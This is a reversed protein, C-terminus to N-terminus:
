TQRCALESKKLKQRKQVEETQRKRLEVLEALKESDSDFDKKPGYGKTSTVV